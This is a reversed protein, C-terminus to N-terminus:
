GCNNSMNASPLCELKSQGLPRHRLSFFLKIVGFGPKSYREWSGSQLWGSASISISDDSKLGGQRFGLVVGPHGTVMSGLSPPTRWAPNCNVLSRVFM